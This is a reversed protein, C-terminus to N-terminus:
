KSEVCEWQDGQIDCEEIGFLSLTTINTFASGCDIIGETGYVWSILVAIIVLRRAQSDM